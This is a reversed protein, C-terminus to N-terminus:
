RVQKRGGTDGEAAESISALASGVLSRSGAAGKRSQAKRREREQQSVSVSTLTDNGIDPESKHKTNPEIPAPLARPVCQDAAWSVLAQRHASKGHTMCAHSRTQVSIIDKHSCMCVKPVSKEQMYAMLPTIIRASADDAAGAGPASHECAARRWRQVYIAITSTM